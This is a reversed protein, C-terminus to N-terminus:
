TPLNLKNYRECLSLYICLFFVWVFAYLFISSFIFNVFIQICSFDICSLFIQQIFYIEKKESKRQNYSINSARSSYSKKWKIKVLHFGFCFNMQLAYFISVIMTVAMRLLLWWGAVKGNPFFIWDVECIWKFLKNMWESFTSIFQWADILVTRGNIFLFKFSTM